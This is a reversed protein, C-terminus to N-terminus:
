SNGCDRLGKTNGTALIVINDERIDIPTNGIYYQKDIPNKYIGFTKDVNRKTAYESLYQHAIKGVRMVDEDEDEDEDEPPAAIAQLQPAAPLQKLNEKIPKLEGILSKKVDKQSETIPKFLKSLERQTSIEGLRESLFNEQINRKTKLFDEVILDRKKPDSIKLFSM